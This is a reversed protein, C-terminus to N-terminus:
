HLADRLVQAPHLAVRGTGDKIQHRCSTGTAVVLNEAPENRVTPFLVLEGIKMSVEFHEAEYGFSGAMGCCGSPILRVRYNEPLQLTRIAPVLGILSKEHCHGHLRITKENRKFQSSDISGSEVERAIFEEFTLCHEALQKATEKEEGRLLDIYEDRFSLIASPEVSILPCDASVLPALKNVNAAALKQADRLLGKSLSARGSELHDPIEVSWGLQELVEIAAIGVEAENFNTFEDCFFLVRGKGGANAHPTHDRFWDEISQKSFGPLSRKTSFGAAKKLIWSSARNTVMFNSLWRFRAGTRNLRDVNAILRTRRSVGHKDQWAQLFEAKMKGVDVNSPCESKCGKCSLCLDMAVRIEENALPNAADDSGAIVHRLINARARTSDREDRTAMFSPCMTGGIKSTKRCDGSGSCMEAARQLGQTNEFDFVTELERTEPRNEFRLAKDMPEPDVIKGPNFVNKPDFATKVRRLMDYCEEGVMSEIFESRARGDGHEGSLSGNYKRVIAAVDTAIERFQLVGDPQKLNIVPRMHIEGSGAHAYYVCQCNYKSLLIQDVDRIYDPLDDIAVATDEIVAVPKADGIVNAVVGLGAKRLDWIRKIDDDVLVPFAYGLGAEVLQQEITSALQSVETQTQGRLSLVLIAGPEGQVFKLNERQSINRAAGQLVLQDILESAHVPHKMAIINARLAEDVSQFHVCLLANEKPPLEHLRLKISTAFFLTGECGAILKCFNFSQNSGPEFVDCQILADIAYGTNRRHITANPFRETVRSRNSDSEFLEAIARYIEGELSELQCKNQFEVKSLPGFTVRSGDSLYGTVELTQDRTTGYVISNSGCSNNGVMGGIMARNSTSTEPGFMLGHRFLEQNLEDRVVGPQVTVTRGAIDINLIETFHKGVDVIIGSGVVQGALSTGATRPILSTDNESAFQVLRQVDHDSKPFAVAAPLQQYVSADTSYLKRTLSDYEITGDLDHDLSEFLSRNSASANM